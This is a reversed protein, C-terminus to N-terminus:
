KFLKSNTGSLCSEQRNLRQSYRCYPELNFPRKSFWDAFWTIIPSYAHLWYHVTVNQKNGPVTVLEGEWEIQQIGLEAKTHGSFLEVHRSFSSCTFVGFKVIFIILPNTFRLSRHSHHKKRKIHVIPSHHPAL